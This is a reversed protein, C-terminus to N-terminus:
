SRHRFAMLPALFFTASRWLFRTWLGGSTMSNEPTFISIPAASPPAQALHISTRMEALAQKVQARLHEADLVCSRMYASVSLGSEAARLRLRDFEMDNVRISVVAHRQELTSDRRMVELSSPTSAQRTDGKTARAPPLAAAPTPTPAPQPMANQGRGNLPGAASEPGIEKFIGTGSRQARKGSSRKGAGQRLKDQSRHQGCGSNWGVDAVPNEVFGPAAGAAIGYSHAKKKAKRESNRSAKTDAKSAVPVTGVRELGASADPMCHRSQSAKGVKAAPGDNRRDSLSRRKDPAEQQELEPKRAQMGATEQAAAPPRHRNLLQLAREYSIETAETAPRNGHRGSAKAPTTARKREAELAAAGRGSISVRVSDEEALAKGAGAPQTLRDLLGAFSERPADNLSVARSMVPAYRSACLCVIRFAIRVLTMERFLVIRRM